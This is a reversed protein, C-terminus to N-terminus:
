EDYEEDEYDAGYDEGGGPGLYCNGPDARSDTLGFCKGINATNHLLKCYIMFAIVSWVVNMLYRGIDLKGWNWPTLLQTSHKMLKGVQKIVFLIFHVKVILSIVGVIKYYRGFQEPFSKFGQCQAPDYQPPGYSGGGFGGKQMMMMLAVVAVVGIVAYMITPNTRSARIADRQGDMQAKIAAQNADGMAKVIGEVQETSLIQSSDTAAESLIDTALSLGAESAASMIAATTLTTEISADITTGTLDILEPARIVVEGTSTVEAKTRSANNLVSTQISDKRSEVYQDTIQKTDIAETATAGISNDLAAKAEAHVAEKISSELQNNQKLTNRTTVKMKGSVSAKLVSDVIRIGCRPNTPDSEALVAANFTILMQRAIDPAVVAMRTANDMIGNLFVLRKELMESCGDTDIEVRVTANNLMVGSSETASNQVACSIARTSLITSAAQAILQSCGESSSANATSSGSTQFNANFGASGALGGMLKM